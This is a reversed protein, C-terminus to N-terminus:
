IKPFIGALPHRLPASLRRRALVVYVWMMVLSFIIAFFKPATFFFVLITQLHRFHYSRLLGMRAYFALIAALTVGPLLFRSRHVIWRPSILLLLLVLPVFGAFPLLNL